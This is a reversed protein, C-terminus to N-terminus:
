KIESLLLLLVGFDCVQVLQKWIQDKVKILETNIIELTSQDM